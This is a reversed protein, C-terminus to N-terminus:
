RHKWLTTKRLDSGAVKVSGGLSGLTGISRLLLSISRANALSSEPTVPLLLLFLGPSTVADMRCTGNNISSTGQKFSPRPNNQEYKESNVDVARHGPGKSPGPM